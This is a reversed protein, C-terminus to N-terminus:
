DTELVTDASELTIETLGRKFVDKASRIDSQISGIGSTKVLANPLEYYFHEWKITLDDEKTSYNYDTGVQKEYHFFVDSIPKSKLFKAMADVM